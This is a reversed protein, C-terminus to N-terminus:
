GLISVPCSAPGTVACLPETGQIGQTANGDHANEDHVNVRERHWECRVVVRQNHAAGVGQVHAGPKERVQEEIL